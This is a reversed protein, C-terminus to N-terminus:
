EDSLINKNLIRESNFLLHLSGLRYDQSSKRWREKKKKKKKPTKRKSTVKKQETISIFIYLLSSLIESVYTSDSFNYRKKDRLCFNTQRRMVWLFLESLIPQRLLFMRECALCKVGGCGHMQVMRESLSSYCSSVERM